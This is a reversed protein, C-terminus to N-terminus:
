FNFLFNKKEISVCCLCLLHSNFLFSIHRARRRLSLWNIKKSYDETANPSAFNLETSRTRTVLLLNNKLTRKLEWKWLCEYSSWNCFAVHAIYLVHCVNVRKISKWVWSLDPSRKLVIRARGYYQVSRESGLLM